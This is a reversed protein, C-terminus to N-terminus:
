RQTVYRESSYRKTVTSFNANGSELPAIYVYVISTRTHITYVVHEAKTQSAFRTCIYNASASSFNGPGPRQYLGLARFRSQVTFTYCDIIQANRWFKSHSILIEGALFSVMEEVAWSDRQGAIIRKSSTSKRQQCPRIVASSCNDRQKLKRDEEAISILQM